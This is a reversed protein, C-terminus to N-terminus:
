KVRLGNGNRASQWEGGLWGGVGTELWELVGEEVRGYLYMEDQNYAIVARVKGRNPVIIVTRM